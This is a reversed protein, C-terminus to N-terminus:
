KWILELEYNIRGDSKINDVYQCPLLFGGGAGLFCSSQKPFGHSHSRTWTTELIYFDLKYYNLVVGHPSGYSLQLTSGHIRLKSLMHHLRTTPLLVEANGRPCWVPFAGLSPRSMASFLFIDQTKRSSLGPETATRGTDDHHWAAPINVQGSVKM